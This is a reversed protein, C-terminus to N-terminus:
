GHHDQKITIIPNNFLCHVVGRTVVAKVHLINHAWCQIVHNLPDEGEGIGLTIFYDGERIEPWTVALGVLNGGGKSLPHVRLKTEATNEGFIDNGYKDAVIYGFIARNVLRECHIDMFLSLKDGAAIYGAYPADNVLLACRSIRAEGRGGLKDEPIETWPINQPFGGEGPRISETDPKIGETAGGLYALSHSRKTYEEVADLPPGDFVLRGKELVLVRDALRTVAHLDHTVILKTVHQMNQTLHAYCKQQFFIDGVALAEDIILIDPEVHVALAFGLRAFMGSSYTKVPREVFDGIDAFTLIDSLKAEIEEKQMGLISGTFFINELGSLEPNFGTGLELMASIRGVLEVTGSTPTLVGAILKLLTSKGSGNGGIIGLCAGRELEFSVDALAHHLSHMEGAGPLVAEVLRDSPREYLRYSKTLARVSLAATSM